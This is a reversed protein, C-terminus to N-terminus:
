YLPFIRLTRRIYFKKFYTTKNKTRLLIETILFGSIVFFLDVGFSGFSAIKNLYEAYNGGVLTCHVIIVALIAMGRLVDINKYHQQTNQSLQVTNSM